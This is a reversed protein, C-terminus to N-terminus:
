FRNAEPLDSFLYISSICYGTDLPFLFLFSYVARNLISRRQILSTINMTILNVNVECKTLAQLTLHWKLSEVSCFVLPMHLNFLFWFFILFLKMIWIKGSLLYKWIFLFVTFFHLKWMICKKFFDLQRFVVFDSFFLLLILFFAFLM